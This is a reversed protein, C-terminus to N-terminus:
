GIILRFHFPRLGLSLWTRNLRVFLDGGTCVSTERQFCVASEVVSLKEHQFKFAAELLEKALFLATM